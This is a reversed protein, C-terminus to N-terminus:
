SSPASCSWHIIADWPNLGEVEAIYGWAALDTLNRSVAQGAKFTVSTTGTFSSRIPGTWLNNDGMRIAVEAGEFSTDMGRIMVADGTGISASTNSRTIYTVKPVSSRGTDVVPVTAPILETGDAATVTVKIKAWPYDGVQWEYIEDILIEADYRTTGDDDWSTVDRSHVDVSDLEKAIDEVLSFMVWVIVVLVVLGIVSGILRGLLAM